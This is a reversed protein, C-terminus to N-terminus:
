AVLQPNRARIEDLEGKDWWAATLLTELKRMGFLPALTKDDARLNGLSLYRLNTLAGVPTLTKVKWTTWMSGELTLGELQSLTSIPDISRIRKLNELGLWRLQTLESLPHISRM